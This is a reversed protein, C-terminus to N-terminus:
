QLGEQKWLDPYETVFGTTSVTLTASYDFDPSEYDYANTGVRHYRHDLRGFTLEPFRLYAVPADVTQGIEMNLRRFQILNTAPTFGLDIDILGEAEPADSGNMLWRGDETVTLTIWLNSDGVWGNVVASLTRWATDCTVEYNLLCPIEEESFVAGGVLRWGDEIKQLTCFDHGPMDIRRWLISEEITKM